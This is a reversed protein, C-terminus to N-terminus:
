HELFTKLNGVTAEAERENYANAVPALVSDVVTNPLRYEAEYHVVTVGDGHLEYEITGDIAGSLEQILREGSSREVDEVRGVLEVGALKYRYEARKGGGPLSEVDTVEILSPTIRVHNRPADLFSFVEAPTADIEVEKEVTFTTSM